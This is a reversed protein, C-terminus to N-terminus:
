DGFRYEAGLTASFLPMKLGEAFATHWRVDVNFALERSALYDIGAQVAAGARGGREGDPGISGGFHYYGGVVGVYPVWEFVDIKYVLGAVASAVDTGDSGGHRSLLGEVHVDFMDSLGYAAHVGLAPGTGRRLLTAFGARAGAHWQDEFARADNVVAVVACATALGLACPRLSSRARLM